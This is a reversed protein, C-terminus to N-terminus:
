FQERGSVPAQSGQFLEYAANLAIAIWTGKADGVIKTAEAFADDYWEHFASNNNVAALKAVLTVFEPIYKDLFKGLGLRVYWTKGIGFAKKIENFIKSFFSNM